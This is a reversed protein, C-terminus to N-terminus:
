ISDSMKLSNFQVLLKNFTEALKISYPIMSPKKLNFLLPPTPQKIQWSHMFLVAPEGYAQAHKKIFYPMLHQITGIFLGSGFPIAESLLKLTIPNPYSAYTKATNFYPSISVPLIILKDINFKKTGYISSDYTFGYDSLIKLCNSTSTINPARFGKPSFEDIFHKSLKLEQELDKESNIPKHTHTHYSVEHGQKKIAYVLDPYAEFIEGLVFFTIKSKTRACTDLITNVAQPIFEGCYNKRQTIDMKRFISVDDHFFWELDISIKLPIPNDSLGSQEKSCSSNNSHKSLCACM